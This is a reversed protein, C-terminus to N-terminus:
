IDLVLFSSKEWKSGYFVVHFFYTFITCKITWVEKFLILMKIDFLKLELSRFGSPFPLLCM